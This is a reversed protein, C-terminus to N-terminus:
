DPPLKKLQTQNAQLYNRKSPDNLFSVEILAMKYYNSKGPVGFYRFNYKRIAGAKLGPHGSFIFYTKALLFIVRTALASPLQDCKM